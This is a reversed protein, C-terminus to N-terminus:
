ERIDLALRVAYEGGEGLGSVVYPGPESLGVSGRFLLRGAGALRTLLASELDASANGLADAFVGAADPLVARGRGLLASAVDGLAGGVRDMVDPRDVDFVKVQVSHIGDGRALVVLRDWDDIRTMDFTGFEGADPGRVFGARGRRGPDCEWWRDLDPLVSHVTDYEGRGNVYRVDTVCRFNSRKGPLAAPFRFGELTLEFSSIAM